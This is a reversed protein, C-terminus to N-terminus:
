LRLSKVAGLNSFNVQLNIQLSTQWSPQASLKLIAEIIARGMVDILEDVAAEAQEIL